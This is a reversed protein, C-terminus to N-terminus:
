RIYLTPKSNVASTEVQRRHVSEMWDLVIKTNFGFFHKVSIEIIVIFIIKIEGNVFDLMENIIKHGYDREPKDRFCDSDKFFIRHLIEPDAVYV